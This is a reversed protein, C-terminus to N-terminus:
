TMFDSKWAAYREQGMLGSWTGRAFMRTLSGSVPLTEADECHAM